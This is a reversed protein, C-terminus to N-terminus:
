DGLNQGLLNPAQGKDTFEVQTATGLSRWIELLMEQFGMLDEPRQGDKVEQALTNILVSYATMASPEIGPEAVKFLSWNGRIIPPKILINRHQQDLDGLTDASIGLALALANPTAVALKGNAIFEGWGRKAEAMGGIIQLIAM